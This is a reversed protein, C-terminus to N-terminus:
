NLPDINQEMVSLKFKKGNTSWEPQLKFGSYTTCIGTMKLLHYAMKELIGEKIKRRDEKLWFFQCKKPGNREVVSGNLPKLLYQQFIM